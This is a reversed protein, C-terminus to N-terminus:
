RSDREKWRGKKWKLSWDSCSVVRAVNTMDSCILSQSRFGLSDMWSKAARTACSYPFWRSATCLCLGALCVVCGGLSVLHLFLLFRLNAFSAPPLFAGYNQLRWYYWGFFLWWWWRWKSMWFDGDGDFYFWHNLDMRPSFHVLYVFRSVIDFWSVFFLFWRFNIKLDWYAVRGDPRFSVHDM